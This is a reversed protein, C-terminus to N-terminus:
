PVEARCDPDGACCADRADCYGPNLCATDYIRCRKVESKLAALRSRFVAALAEHKEAMRLLCDPCDVDGSQYVEVDKQADVLSVYHSLMCLQGEIKHVHKV